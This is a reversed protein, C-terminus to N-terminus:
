RHVEREILLSMRSAVTKLVEPVNQELAPKMFPMAKAGPHRVSRGYIVGGAALVKKRGKYPKIKHPKTGKEVMHAYWGDNKQGKGRRVYVQVSMRNKVNRVAIAKRLKGSKRSVISKAAKSILSAGPKLARKVIRRELKVPFTNLFKQLQEGGEIKFDTSM